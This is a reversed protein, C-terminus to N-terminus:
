EEWILLVREAIVSRAKGNEHTFTVFKDEKKLADNVIKSLGKPEGKVTWDTTGSSARSVRIKTAM